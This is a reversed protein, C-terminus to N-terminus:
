CVGISPLFIVFIVCFKISSIMLLQSIEGMGVQWTVTHLTVVVETLKFQWNILRGDLVAIPQQTAQGATTITMTTVATPM